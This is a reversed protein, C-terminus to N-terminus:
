KENKGWLRESFYAVLNWVTIPWTLIIFPLREYDISLYQNDGLSKKAVSYVLTLDLVTFFAGVLVWYIIISLM